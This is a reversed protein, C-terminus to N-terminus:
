NSVPKAAQAGVHDRRSLALAKRAIADPRGQRGRPPDHSPPARAIRGRAPRGRAVVDRARLLARAAERGAGASRRQLQQGRRGRLTAEPGGVDLERLRARGGPPRVPRPTLVGRDRRLERARSARARSSASRAAIGDTAASSSRASASPSGSPRCRGFYASNVIPGLTAEPGPNFPSSSRRRRRRSFMGLIWVSLLGSESGGRARVRTPSGIRPSSPSPRCRRRHGDSGPGEAGARAPRPARRSALRSRFRHGGPQDPHDEQRLHRPREPEVHGSLARHGRRGTHVLARPRLPEGAKFFM